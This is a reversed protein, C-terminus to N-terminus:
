IHILSLTIGLGTTGDGSLTIATSPQIYFPHSTADNARKFIYSSAINLELTTIETTGASDTYFRYYPTTSEEGESVYITIPDPLLEYLKYIISGQSATFSPNNGQITNQGLNSATKIENLDTPSGYPHWINASVAHAQKDDVIDKILANYCSKFLAEYADISVLKVLGKTAIPDAKNLSNQDQRLKRAWAGIIADTTNEDSLDLPGGNIFIIDRMAELIIGWSGEVLGHAVNGIFSMKADLLSAVPNTYINILDNNGIAANAPNLQCASIITNLYMDYNITIPDTNSTSAYKAIQYVALTSYFNIMPLTTGAPAISFLQIATLNRLVVDYAAEGFLPYAINPFSAILQGSKNTTGIVTKPIGLPDGIDLDTINFTSVVSDSIPGLVAGTQVDYVGSNYAADAYPDGNAYTIEWDTTQSSSSTSSIIISAGPPIYFTHIGDGADNVVQVRDTTDDFYWYLDLTNNGGNLSVDLQLETWASLAVTHISPNLYYSSLKFGGSDAPDNLGYAVVSNTSDKIQRKYM